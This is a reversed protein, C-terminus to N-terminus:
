WKALYSVTEMSKKQRERLKMCTLIVHGLKCSYSYVFLFFEHIQAPPAQLIFLNIGLVKREEGTLVSLQETGLWVCGAPSEWVGWNQKTRASQQLSSFISHNPTPLVHIVGDGFHAASRQVELICEQIM